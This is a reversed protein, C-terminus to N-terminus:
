NNVMQQPSTNAKAGGSIMPQEITMRDSRDRSAHNKKHQNSRRQFQRMRANSIRKTGSISNQSDPSKPPLANVGHARYASVGETSSTSQPSSLRVAELSEAIQVSQGSIQNLSSATSATSKKGSPPIPRVM